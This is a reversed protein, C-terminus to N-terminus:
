RDHRTAWLREKARLKLLFYLLGGGDVLGVMMDWNTQIFYVRAVSNELGPFRGLYAFCALFIMGAVLSAGACWFALPYGWSERQRIGMGSIGLLVGNVSLVLSVIDLIQNMQHHQALKPHPAAMHGTFNLVGLVALLIGVGVNHMSFREDWEKREVHFEGPVDMTSVEHVIRYAPVPSNTTSVAAALDGDAPTASPKKFDAGCAPCWPPPPAGDPAPVAAGCQGCIVGGPIVSAAGASTPRKLEAGCKGCWPPPREGATLKIMHQCQLCQIAQM